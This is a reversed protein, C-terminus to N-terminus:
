LIQEPNIGAERQAVDPEASRMHRELRDREDDPQLRWMWVSPAAVHFVAVPLDALAHLRRAFLRNDTM